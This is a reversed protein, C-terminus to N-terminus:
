GHDKEKKLGVAEGRQLDAAGHLVAPVGLVTTHAPHVRPPTSGVMTPLTYVVMYVLICVGPYVETKCVSLFVPVPGGPAEREAYLQYIHMLSSLVRRMM